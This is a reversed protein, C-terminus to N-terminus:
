SDTPKGDNPGTVTASEPGELISEPAVGEVAGEVAAVESTPAAYRLRGNHDIVRVWHAGLVVEAEDFVRLFRADRFHIRVTGTTRDKTEIM